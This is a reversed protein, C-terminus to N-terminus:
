FSSDFIDAPNAIAPMLVLKFPDWSLRALSILRGDVDVQVELFKLANIDGFILVILKDIESHDRWSLGVKEESNIIELNM